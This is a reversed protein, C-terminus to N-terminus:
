SNCMTDYLVVKNVLWYALHQILGCQQSTLLWAALQLVKMDCPKFALWLVYSLDQLSPIHMDECTVSILLFLLESANSM